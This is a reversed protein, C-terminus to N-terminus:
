PIMLKHTSSAGDITLRVLALGTMDPTAVSTENLNNAQSHHLLRGSLDYIEVELQRATQPLEIRILDGSQYVKPDSLALTENGM